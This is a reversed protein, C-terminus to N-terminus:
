NHLLNLLRIPEDFNRDLWSQSRNFSLLENVQKVLVAFNIDIFNINKVTEVFFSSSGCNPCFKSEPIIKNFKITAKRKINCCGCRTLFWKNEIYKGCDPCYGSDNEPSVKSHTCEKKRGFIM